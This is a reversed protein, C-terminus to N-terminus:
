SLFTTRGHFNSAQQWGWYEAGSFETGVWVPVVYLELDMRLLKTLFLDPVLFVSTLENDKIGFLFFGAM